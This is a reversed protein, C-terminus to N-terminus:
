LVDPGAGCDADHQMTALVLLRVEDLLPNMSGRVYSDVRDALRPDNEALDLEAMVNECALRILLHVHDIGVEKQLLEAVTGDHLGKEQAVDFPVVHMEDCVFHLARAPLITCFHDLVDSFGM